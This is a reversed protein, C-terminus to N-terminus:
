LCAGGVRQSLVQLQEQMTQMKEKQRQRFRAQASRNKEQATEKSAGRGGRRSSDGEEAESGSCALVGRTWCLQQQSQQV